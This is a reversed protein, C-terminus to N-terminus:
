EYWGFDNIAKRMMWVNYPPAKPPLGCGPSLVFGGPHKKGSEICLRSLEYVEEPTGAQIVAPEVNGMIIDNPFYKSAADLDVEHGFSIIAPDGMPIQVWYPLNLNQEGCIHTNIHKVGMALIRENVEKQYPLFFEEFYKPSIIQNAETPAQSNSIMREPRGLTDVWYKALAVHFDAVLQCLRHVLEPKKIMWRCMREVGTVYGLRTLIGGSPFTVPWGYKDQLRAFRMVVPVVGATKVDPLELKWADEESEVAPRSLSVAMAYESTPLKVEGGFERASFAGGQFHMYHWGDFMEHTRSQAEFSKEADEYMAVISLGVNVGAFSTGFLNFPVRDIPQRNLLAELREQETMRDQRFQAM